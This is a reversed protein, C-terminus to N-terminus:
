TTSVPVLVVEVVAFASTVFLVVPV